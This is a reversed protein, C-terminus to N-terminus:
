SVPDVMAISAILTLDFVLRNSFVYDGIRITFIVLILLAIYHLSFSFKAMVGMAFDKSMPTNVNSLCSHHLWQAHIVLIYKLVVLVVQIWSYGM